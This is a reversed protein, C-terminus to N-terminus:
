KRRYGVDDYMEVSLGKPVEKGSEIIEEVVKVNLRRQVAAAYGNDGFWKVLSDWMEPEYVARSKAQLFVTTGDVTMSETGSEKLKALIAANVEDLQEGLLKLQANLTDRDDQLARKARVLESLSAQTIDSNM